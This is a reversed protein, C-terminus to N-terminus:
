HTFVCILLSIASILMLASTVLSMGSYYSMKENSFMEIILGALVNSVFYIIILDLIAYYWKLEKFSLYIVGLYILIELGIFMPKQKVLVNKNKLTAFVYNFMAVSLLAFIIALMSPHIELM